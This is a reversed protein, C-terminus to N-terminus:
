RQGFLVSGVRIMNAGEKIALEFDSSMGMSLWPLRSKFCTELKEKLSFLKRFERVRTGEDAEESGITMLGEVSLHEMGFASELLFELGEESVGNKQEEESVNVQLLVPFKFDPPYVETFCLRSVEKNIEGALSVSDVSQIMSCFKIVKKVKNRQLAGIMHFRPTSGSSFVSSSVDEWKKEAEQVYNEGFIMCGAEYLSIIDSAPKKKSVGIITIEDPERGSANCAIQVRDLVSEWNRGLEKAREIMGETM